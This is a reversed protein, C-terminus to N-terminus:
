GIFNCERVHQFLVEDPLTSYDQFQVENAEITARNPLPKRLKNAGRPVTKGNVINSVTATCVGFKKAIDKISLGEEVKMKKIAEHVEVRLYRNM